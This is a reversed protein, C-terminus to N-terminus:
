KVCCGTEGCQVVSVGCLVVRYGWVACCWGAVGCKVVSVGCLVVMDDWVECCESWM